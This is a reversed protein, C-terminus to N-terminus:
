GTGHGQVGFREKVRIIRKLYNQDSELNRRMVCNRDAWKLLADRRDATMDEPQGHQAYLKDMLNGNFRKM